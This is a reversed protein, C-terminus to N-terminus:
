AALAAGTWWDLRRLFPTPDKPTVLAAPDHFLRDHLRTLTFRVAAIAGLEPLAAREAASLPRVSEYGSQFAKLAAPLPGGGADFGWASLAIALDYALTDVCAFYFDILGSPTGGEFLLNDPFYDAHIPGRPLGAALDPAGEAVWPALRELLRRDAGVARTDCREFLAQRAAPGVPNARMGPYDATALHLRALLAGAAAQDAPTPETRAVGPLWDLIAAPRGNLRGIAKGAEDVLPRACPMGREAAHRTLGLCFPLATEDTRGEFLTLVFRGQDTDLRYNTNEVGEAIPTLARLPGLGFRSIFPEAEAEGVPTFVAM